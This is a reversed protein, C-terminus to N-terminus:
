HKSQGPQQFGAAARFDRQLAAFQEQPGPKTDQVRTDAQGAGIWCKRNFSSRHV